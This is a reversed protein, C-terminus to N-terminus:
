VDISFHVLAEISCNTVQLAGIQLHFSLGKAVAISTVNKLNMHQVSGVSDSSMTFIPQTLAVDSLHFDQFSFSGGMLTKVITRGMSFAFTTNSVVLSGGSVTFVGMGLPGVLRSDKMTFNSDLCYLLPTGPVILEGKLGMLLLVSRDRVILFNTTNVGLNADLFGRINRYTVDNMIAYCGVRIILMSAQSSLDDVVLHNFKITSADLTGFVVVNASGEQVLLNEAFLVSSVVFFVGSSTGSFKRLSVTNLWVTALQANVLNGVLAASPNSFNFLTLNSLYVIASAVNTGTVRLLPPKSIHRFVGGAIMLVGTIQLSFPPGSSNSVTIDTFTANSGNLSGVLVQTENLFQAETVTLVVQNSNVQFVASSHSQFSCQAFAVSHTAASTSGSQDNLMLVSGGSPASNREFTCNQLLINTPGTATSTSLLLVAGSAATNSVFSSGFVSLQVGLTLVTLTGKNNNAFESLWVSVRGAALVASSTFGRVSCRVLQLRGSVSLVYDTTATSVVSLMFLTLHGVIVTKGPIDLQNSNGLLTFDNWLSGSPLTISSLVLVTTNVGPSGQTFANLLSVYPACDSGDESGVSSTQDVHYPWQLSGDAASCAWCQPALLALLVLFRM